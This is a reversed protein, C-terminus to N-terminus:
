GHPLLLRFTSGQRPYSELSVQGGFSNVLHKVISLGLGTGGMERSRAKDVRYFREFVRAQHSAAIGIGTDQVEITVGEDRASWRITVKGGAPTYKIANDILNNLITRLGESDARVLLGDDPEEIPRSHGTSSAAVGPEAGAREGSVEHSELAGRSPLAGPPELHLQIQKAKAAPEFGRVCLLISEEVPISDIEFAEQGSEVRALQLLDQILDHLRDTQEEIRALFVLNNEADNIAGMRLTEAFAKISALPTKLEHSVNAVFESRLNELRRLESVDHLVVMAGPREAGGIRSARVTLTKRLPGGTEVEAQLPGESKLATLALDQLARHRALEWLPRGRYEGAPFDLIRRSAQNALVVRAEADIALVGEAMTDIVNAFRENSDRLEDMKAALQERMRAFEAGVHEIGDGLPPSVGQGQEDTSRGSAPEVVEQVLETFPRVARWAVLSSVYVAAGLCPVLLGIMMWQMARAEKRISDVERAARVFASVSGDRRVPVAVYLMTMGLTASERVDSGMDGTALAQQLEPRGLHSGMAGPDDHSDALVTGDRDIVTLRVSTQRRVDELAAQLGDRSGGLIGAGWGDRFAVAADRLQDRTQKMASNPQWIVIIAVPLLAVLAILLLNAAILKRYLRSKWRNGANM